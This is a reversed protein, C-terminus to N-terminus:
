SEHQSGDLDDETPVDRAESEGPFRLKSFAPLVKGAWAASVVGFFWLMNMSYYENRTMTVITPVEASLPTSSNESVLRFTSDSQKPDDLVAAAFLTRTPLEVDFLPRPNVVPSERYSTLALSGLSGASIAPYVVDVEREELLTVRENEPSNHSFLLLRISNAKQPVQRTTPDKLPSLQIQAVGFRSEKPFIWTEALETLRSAGFVQILLAPLIFAVFLSVPRIPPEATHGDSTKKHM